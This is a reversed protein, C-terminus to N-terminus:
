TGANQLMPRERTQSQGAVITVRRHKFKWRGGVRLLTDDYEAMIYPAELGHEINFAMVYCRLRGENGSIDIIHNVAWHRLKPLGTLRRKAVYDFLQASGAARINNGSQFIGDETFLDAWAEAEHHDIYTNYKAVLEIIEIKDATENAM